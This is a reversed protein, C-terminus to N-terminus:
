QRIATLAFSPGNQHDPQECGIQISNLGFYKLCALIDDRSMWYSFTSSGGCFGGWELAQEYSHRYLTHKFGAYEAPIGSSFKHSLGSNSSIIQHNYYHTWLFVQDSTKAALAILEAPNQMHYLVGSAICVDFKKPNTRLYEVFDGCLFRAGKLELLEKIILCKLFARTNAEISVISAAGFRELMYTHGAELPGLELVTKGKVGGLQTMGWEIRPDEFVLASGANLEALNGPLKSSWEGQFIDLAHQPNPASTIYEDLINM